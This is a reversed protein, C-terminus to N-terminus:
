KETKRKHSSYVVLGALSFLLACVILLGTPSLAIINGFKAAVTDMEDALVNFAVAFEEIM